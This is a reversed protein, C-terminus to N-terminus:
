KRGNISLDLTKDLPLLMDGDSNWIIVGSKNILIESPIPSVINSYKESLFPNDSALM